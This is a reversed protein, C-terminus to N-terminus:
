SRGIHSVVADTFTKASATGGVDPTVIRGSYAATVADRIRDAADTFGIFDLALAGSLVASTPNVYEPDGPPNSGHMPEFLGQSDGISGMPTLHMGGVLGSAVGSLVSGYVDTSVIVDLSSPDLVMREAV